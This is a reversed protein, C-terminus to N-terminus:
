NSKSTKELVAELESIVESAHGDVSVPSWVKVVRGDPDILVTSRIVGEYSKGMFKKMGWVGYAKLTEKSTDSLLTFPLQFGTAFKVHSSTSDPSMGLVVAGM